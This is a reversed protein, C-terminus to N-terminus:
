DKGLPRPPTVYSGIEAVFNVLRRPHKIERRDVGHLSKYTNEFFVGVNDKYPVTAFIELTSDEVFRKDTFKTEGKYLYLPAGEDGEIPFYMLGSFCKAFNDIHAGVNLPGHPSVIGTQCDLKVGPGDIGRVSCKETINLEFVARIHDWWAQSSHEECFMKWIGHAKYGPIDLRQNPHKYKIGPFNAKLEWYLDWPLVPDLICHKFPERVLSLEIM